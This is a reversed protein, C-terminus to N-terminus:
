SQAEDTQPAPQAALEADPDLADILSRAGLRLELEDVVIAALDELTAIQEDTIERPVVDIVALMGLVQSEPSVLPVVACFRMGFDGTVLPHQALLPDATADNIV